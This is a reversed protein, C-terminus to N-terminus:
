PESAEIRSLAEPGSEAGHQLRAAERIAYAVASEFRDLTPARTEPAHSWSHEDAPRIALRSQAAAATDKAHMSRDLQRM